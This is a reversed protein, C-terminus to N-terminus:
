FFLIIAKSVDGDDRSQRIGFGSYALGVSKWEADDRGRSALGVSKWETDDRGRSSPHPKLACARDLEHLEM